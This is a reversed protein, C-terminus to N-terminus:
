GNKMPTGGSRDFTGQPSPDKATPLSGGQIVEQEDGSRNAAIM